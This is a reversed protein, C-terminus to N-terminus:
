ANFKIVPIKAAKIGEELLEEREEDSCAGVIGDKDKLKEERYEDRHYHMERAEEPFKEGVDIFKEKIYNIYDKPGLTKPEVKEEKKTTDARGKIINVKSLLKEVGGTNCIPCRIKNQELQKIYADYNPFEGEFEHSNECRFDYRVM